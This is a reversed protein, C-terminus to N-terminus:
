SSGVVMEWSSNLELTSEALADLVRKLEEPDAPKVFFFHFKLRACRQRTEPDGKGTVAILGLRAPKLGERLQEVLHPGDARGLVADTILVDPRFARGVALAAEPDYSVRAEYGWQRVLRATSDATDPDDDIVFVRLPRRASPPGPTQV